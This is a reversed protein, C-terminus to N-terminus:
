ADHLTIGQNALQARIIQYPGIKDCSGLGIVCDGLGSGSVKAPLPKFLEIIELLTKDVVGMDVMLAQNAQFAQAFAKLDKNKLADTAFLTAEDIENFIRAFKEPSQSAATEVIKIVEPTPTKYGAYVLTIPFLFDLKQWSFPQQRYCIIGGLISAALDAGSGRGQVELLSKYAIDFIAKPNEQLSPNLALVTAVLVAASSGLGVTSSFESEITLDFGKKIHYQKIVSLVFTFPAKIEIADIDCEFDGLVSHISIRQDQRPSLYVHLRQDVSAVLAHKGHLVAHEGMLMLTAPASTHIM